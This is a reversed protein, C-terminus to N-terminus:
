DDDHMDQLRAGRERERAHLIHADVDAHERKGGCKGDACTGDEPEDGCEMWGAPIDRGDETRAPPGTAGSSALAGPGYEDKGFQRKTGHQQHPGPEQDATELAQSVHVEAESWIVEH